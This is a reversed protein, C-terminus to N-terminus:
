LRTGPLKPRRRIIQGRGIGVVKGEEVAALVTKRDALYDRDAYHFGQSALGRKTHPEKHSHIGGDPKIRAIAVMEGAVHNDQGAVPDFWLDTVIYYWIAQSFERAPGRTDDGGRWGKETWTKMVQDGVKISAFRVARPSKRKKRVYMEIWRPGNGGTIWTM